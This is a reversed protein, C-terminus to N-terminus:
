KKKYHDNSQNLGEFKIRKHVRPKYLRFGYNLLVRKFLM